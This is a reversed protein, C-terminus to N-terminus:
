DINKVKFDRLFSGWRREYFPTIHAVFFHSIGKEGEVVQCIDIPEDELLTDTAM